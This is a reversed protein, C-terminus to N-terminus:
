YDLLYEIHNVAVIIASNSQIFESTFIHLCSLTQLLSQILSVLLDDVMFTLSVIHEVLEHLHLRSFLEVLIADHPLTEECDVAYFSSVKLRKIHIASRIGVHYQLYFVLPYLSRKLLARQIWHPVLRKCELNVM